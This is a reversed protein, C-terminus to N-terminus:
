IKFPHAVISTAVSKSAEGAQLPPRAEADLSDINFCGWGLGGGCAPSPACHRHRQVQVEDATARDCAPRPLFAAQKKAMPLLNWRPRQSQRTCRVRICPAM